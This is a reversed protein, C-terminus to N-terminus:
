PAAPDSVAPAAPLTLEARQGGADVQGLTLEGGYLSALEQVIALGLGSGPVSEDLRAGRALVAQRRSADIGPGDLHM